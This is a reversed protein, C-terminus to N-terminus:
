FPCPVVLNLLAYMLPVTLVSITTSIIAMSAGPEPDGGYAEPFVVTNMGLPMSTAFFAFYIPAASVEFSLLATLLARIGILSGVILSPLLTLRFISAVYVKKNTILRKFDYKAITLGAIIMATPGMCVKLSNLTGYVFEPIYQKLGTIGFLMGSVLAITPFNLLRKLPSGSTKNAPTLVSIGWIYIVITFPLCFFKYSGLVATGFLDEVLPDAMYGLNAFVLAYQYIGRLYSKEKVFFVSLGIGLILALSLTIVAFIINTSYESISEINFSESMSVFALAPCFVWTQLKALTTAGDSKVIKTKELTYGIAMCLFLTMVPNFIMVFTNM